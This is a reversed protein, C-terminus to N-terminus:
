PTAGPRRLPKPAYGKGHEREHATGEDLADKWTGGVTVGWDCDFCRLVYPGRHGGRRLVIVTSREALMASNM